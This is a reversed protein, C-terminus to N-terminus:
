LDPTVPRGVATQVLAKVTAWSPRPEAAAPSYGPAHRPIRVRLAQPATRFKIPPEMMTAEGDIGVEVPGDSDVEFHTDAWERWGGFRRGRGAAHLQVFRAVESSNRFTATAVGLVGSALTRRSGFGERNALEYRGNSVLILHASASAAGEPGTFRLDFPVADPGLMSPLLDLATRVKQERYGPSQVIRAYLGMTANNVFVRDGMLALDIRQEVASDFADLCGVLDERDLGLDMAFHNRTGAPVCVFAVGHRSAVSAVLAQSGDGGAMGIVDAGRAVVAEEALGAVDDGPRLVITAIGRRRAAAELAFREVKGGGSRPNLILFPRSSSGVEVGPTPGMKLSPLDRRLGYRAAWAGVAELAIVLVPLWLYGSAALLVVPAIAGLGAGILAIRRRAGERTLGYSALGVAAALCAINTLMLLPHHMLEFIITAIAGGAAALALMASARRPMATQGM